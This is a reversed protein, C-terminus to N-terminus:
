KKMSDKSKMNVNGLYCHRVCAMEWCGDFTSGNQKVGCCLDLKKQEFAFFIWILILSRLMQFPYLIIELDM